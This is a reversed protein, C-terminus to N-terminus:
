SAGLVGGPHWAKFGDRTLGKRRMLVIALADGMALAAATSCTPVLGLPCATEDAACDLVVTAMNALRSDKVATLAVIAVPQTRDPLRPHFPVAQLANALAIVENCEGSRSILVAVDRPRVRGMDGHVAETPHLFAAATGTSSLTGAIKQAIHGSKGVGSVHVTPAKDLLDVAWAFEPGVRDATALLANGEARIIEAAEVAPISM